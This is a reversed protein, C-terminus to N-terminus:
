KGKDAGKGRFRQNKGMFSLLTGMDMDVEGMFPLIGGMVGDVKGMFCFRLPTGVSKKEVEHM